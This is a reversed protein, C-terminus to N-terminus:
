SPAGRQGDGHDRHRTDPVPAQGDPAFGANTLMRRVDVVLQADVDKGRPTEITETEPGVTVAFKGNHEETVTGLNELLGLIERWEVNGGAPHDFIKAIAQRHHSSLHSTM